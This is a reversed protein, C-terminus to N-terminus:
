ERLPEAVLAVFDGREGLGQREGFAGIGRGLDRADSGRLVGADHELRRGPEDAHVAILDLDLSREGRRASRNGRAGDYERRLAASVLTRWGLQATEAEVHPHDAVGEGWSSQEM